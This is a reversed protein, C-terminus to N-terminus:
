SAGQLIKWFSFRYYFPNEPFKIKCFYLLAKWPKWVVVHGKELRSLNSNNNNNESISAGPCLKEECISVEELGIIHAYLTKDKAWIMDYWRFVAFIWGVLGSKKCVWVNGLMTKRSSIWECLLMRLKYKTLTTYVYFRSWCVAWFNEKFNVFEGNNM